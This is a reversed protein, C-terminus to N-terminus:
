GVCSPSSMRRSSDPRSRSRSRSGSPRTPSGRGSSRGRARRSPRSRSPPSSRRPSCSREPSQVASLGSAVRSSSRVSPSSSSRRAVLSGGCCAAPPTAPTLLLAVATCAVLAVGGWSVVPDPDTIAGAAIPLAVVVVLSLLVTGALLRANSATVVREADVSKISAPSSPVAGRVTWRNSMFHRYDIFYGDPVNVLTSPLARLALPVAGVSIAAAAVVPMRLLLTAGWIVVLGLLVTAVTGWGARQAPVRDAVALFLALASTALLGAVAQLHGAADISFPIALAGAAGAAALPGVMAVAPAAGHRGSGISWVVAVVVASVGLIAAILGRVFWTPQIAGVLAYVPLPIAALAWWGAGYAVRRSAAAAARARRAALPGSPAHVVAYVGGDELVDGEVDLDVAYGGRDIILDRAPDVSIGSRRVADALLEDVPIALDVAGRDGLLTIRRREPAVTTM